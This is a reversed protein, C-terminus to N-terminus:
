WNSRLPSDHVSCITLPAGVSVWPGACLGLVVSIAEVSSQILMAVPLNFGTVANMCCFSLTLPSMPSAIFSCPSNCYHRVRAPNAPAVLRRGILDALFRDPVVHRGHAIHPLVALQDRWRGIGHDVAEVGVPLEPGVLFHCQVDRVQHVTFLPDTELPRDTRAVTDARCPPQGRDVRAAVHVQDRELEFRDIFLALRDGIAGSEEERSFWSFSSHM